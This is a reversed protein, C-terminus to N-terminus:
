YLHGMLGFAEPSFLVMDRKLSTPVAQQDELIM